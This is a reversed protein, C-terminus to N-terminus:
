RRLFKQYLWSLIHGPILRVPVRILINLIAVPLNVFEMQYFDRQLRVEERAYELGGRRASMEREGARVKALISPLNALKMDKALMRAWLSYDEMRDDPHYNGATLISERKAMVTTQNLPSRIKGWSAIKSPATPVKRVAHPEEPNEEFETIYGGLADLNPRQYLHDTQREFREPVSLDDSDQFAVLDHTASRVGAARAAGAGCNKELRIIKLNDQNELVGNLEATLEGDAVVVVESPSCTQRQTVSKLSEVFHTPDDKKYVPIVVSISLSSM